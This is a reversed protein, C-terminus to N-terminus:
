RTALAIAELHFTQPMLDLGVARELRFGQQVLGRLDRALTMPDCSVYVVRAVGLAALLPAVRPSGERPPDLVAVEFREGAAVLRRLVQEADGALPRVGGGLAVANRELLECAERSSEVAVVEGAERALGATLAGLGAYLEVVRGGAPAAWAAVRERLQAEGETSAQAFAAAGGLLAADPASAGAPREPLHAGPGSTGLELASAGFLHREGRAVVEGGVVPPPLGRRALRRAWSAEGREIRLSVHV